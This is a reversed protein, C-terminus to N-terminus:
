AIFVVISVRFIAFTMNRYCLSTEAEIFNKTRALPLKFSSIFPWEVILLYDYTKQKGGVAKIKKTYDMSFPM